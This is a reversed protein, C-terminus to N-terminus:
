SKDWIYTVGRYVGCLLHNIKKYMSQNIWIHVQLSDKIYAFFHNPEKDLQLLKTPLSVSNSSCIYSSHQMYQTYSYTYSHLLFQLSQQICTEPHKDKVFLAGFGLLLWGYQKHLRIVCFSTVYPYLNAVFISLHETLITVSTQQM